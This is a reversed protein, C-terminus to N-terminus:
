SVEKSVPVTASGVKLSASIVKTLVPPSLQGDFILKVRLGYNVLDDPPQYSAKKTFAGEIEESEEFVTSLIADIRVSG